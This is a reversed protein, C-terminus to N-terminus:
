APVFPNLAMESKIETRPGHGPYVLTEPALKYLVNRISFVIKEMDGGPLDTRGISREFLTDGSFCDLGVVFCVSGETHGPTELVRLTVDEFPIQLGTRLAMDIAFPGFGPPIFPMEAFRDFDVIALDAPHMAVLAQTAERVSPVGALHDVHGHTLLIGDVQLGERDVLDLVSRYQLGPDIIVTTRSDRRRLVYCNQAFLPDRFVSLQLRERLAEAPTV